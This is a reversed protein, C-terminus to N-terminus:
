GALPVKFIAKLIDIILDLLVVVFLVFVPIVMFTRLLLPVGPVNFSLGAWFIGIATGIIGAVKGIADWIGVNPAGGLPNPNDKPGTKSVDIPFKNAGEAINENTTVLGLGVPDFIASVVGVVLIYMILFVFFNLKGIGLYTDAM